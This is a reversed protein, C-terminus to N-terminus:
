VKLSDLRFNKEMENHNGDFDQNVDAEKVLLFKGLLQYSGSYAEISGNFNTVLHLAPQLVLYYVLQKVVVNCNRNVDKILSQIVLTPAFLIITTYIKFTISSTRFVM